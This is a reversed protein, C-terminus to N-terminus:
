VELTQLCQLALFVNLKSMITQDGNEVPLHLSPLPTVEDERLFGQDRVLEGVPLQEVLPPLELLPVLLRLPFTSQLSSSPNAPDM